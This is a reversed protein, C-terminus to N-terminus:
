QKDNGKKFSEKQEILKNTLEIIGKNNRKGSIVKRVYDTSYGAADAITSYDGYRLKKKLENSKTM